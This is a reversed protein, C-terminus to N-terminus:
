WNHWIETNWDLKQLGTFRKKYDYFSPTEHCYGHYYYRIGLRQAYEIECLMTYLGLSRASYEPAFMGYITSVSETGIDLFSAAILEAGDYVCVERCETPIVAPEESMFDYITQPINHAFRQKHREFLRHEAEAIQAPRVVFRLDENKRQVRRQSKSLRFDALSIRVPLVRRAEDGYRDQTYRYFYIGFHRWGRALLKDLLDPTVAYAFFYEDLVTLRM